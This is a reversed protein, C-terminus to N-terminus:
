LAGYLEVSVIEGDYVRCSVTVQQGVGRITKRIYAPYSTDLIITHWTGYEHVFVKYEGTPASKFRLPGEPVGIIVGFLLKPTGKSMAASVLRLSREITKAQVQRYSRGM